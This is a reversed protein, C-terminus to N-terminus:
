FLRTAKLMLRFSLDPRSVENVTGTLYLERDPCYFAFAGSLGSHGIFKPRSGFPVMFWPPRFRSIGLGYELPFFIKTWRSLRPIRDASFLEGEFFARLFRMSERATSVIGGDPGFSTMARPIGLPKKKHRLPVPRDDTPDDYLYTKTLGLPDFILARLLAQYPRGSACEVVRGLLQFNTDSYLAKGPTGPAFTAALTRARELASELEWAEDEGGVLRSELSPGSAPKSQFYDPIGSSHTILHRITLSDGRDRGSYTQLGQLLSPSVHSKVLDDLNLQGQEELMFVIASTYLKTTSAIFYQTDPGLNGTGGCWRLSRDRTSVCLVVGELWRHRCTAEVLRTLKAEM